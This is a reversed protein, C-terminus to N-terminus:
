KCLTGRQQDGTCDNLETARKSIATAPFKQSTRIRRAAHAITQAAVPGTRCDYTLPMTGDAAFLSPARPLCCTRKQRRPRKAARVPFPRRLRPSDPMTNLFHPKEPKPTVREQKLEVLFPSTPDSLIRRHRLNCSAVKHVHRRQLEISTFNGDADKSRIQDGRRQRRAGNRRSYHGKRTFPTAVTNVDQGNSGRSRERSRSRSREMFITPTSEPTNPSPSQYSGPERQGNRRRRM